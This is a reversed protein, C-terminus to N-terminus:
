ENSEKASERVLLKFLKADLKEAISLAVALVKLLEGGDLEPPPLLPLPPPPPPLLLKSQHCEFSFLPYGICGRLSM